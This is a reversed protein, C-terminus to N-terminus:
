PAGDGCQGGPSPPVAGLRLVESAVKAFLPAAASAGFRYKTGAPPEDITVAITYRPAEAPVYGVFSAVYHYQGTEDKYNNIKKKGTKQDYGELYGKNQAKYGTGTKGAVRYGPLNLYEDRHSGVTGEKSCVVEELAVAMGAATEPSVVKRPAEADAPHETGDPDLTSQVLKPAVYTGGRAIVNMAAALQVQTVSVGQGYAITDRQSGYWKSSPPLLGESENPFGIATKEGFGFAHLYQEFPKVGVAQALKVTGINSSQSLIQRFTLTQGGLAVEANHITDDASAISAPLEWYEDVTTVGTDLAAAAPVIKMVSGAEYADLLPRNKSTVVLRGSADPEVSALALLEGTQTDMVTVMGGNAAQMENAHALLLQEVQYQMTQDITLVIDEGPTAPVMTERGTPITRGDRGRERVILGKTGTLQEDFLQEMGATGKGDPDTAGVISRAVDGAPTFRKPEELKYIGPLKMEAIRAATEDDVQRAVYAFESGERSLAAELRQVRAADLGLVGGLVAATGRKDIVLRPDAWITTQPVSIALETHNRDLISGREATLEVRYLRQQEGFSSYKDRDVTALLAVRAVTLTLLGACVCFLVVMRREPRGARWLSPRPYAVRRRAAARRRRVIAEAHSTRPRPAAASRRVPRAPADSRAPTRAPTRGRRPPDVVTSM